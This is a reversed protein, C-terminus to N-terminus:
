GNKKSIVLHTIAWKNYKSSKFIHTLIFNLILSIRGLLGSSYGIPYLKKVKYSAGLDTNIDEKSYNRFFYKKPIFIKIIERIKRFFSELNGYTFILIGEDKLIRSIKDFVVKNSDFYGVVGLLYVIDFNGEFCNEEKEFNICKYKGLTRNNKAFKIMEPSIDIGIGEWKKDQALLEELIKGTGCGIDLIRIKKNQYNKILIKILIEKRKEVEYAIINNSSHNEKQEWSKVENNFRKEVDNQMQKNIFKLIIKNSV